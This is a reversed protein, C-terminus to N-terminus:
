EKKFGMPTKKVVKFAPSGDETIYYEVRYGAEKYEQIEAEMAQLNGLEEMVRQALQSLLLTFDGEDIREANELEKM